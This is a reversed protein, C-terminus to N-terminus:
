LFEADTSLLPVTHWYRRNLYRRQVKYCSCRDACIVAAFVGAAFLLSFFIWLLPSWLVSSRRFAPDFICQHEMRLVLSKGSTWVMRQKCRTRLLSHWYFSCNQRGECLNYIGNLKDDQSANYVCETPLGTPSNESESSCLETKPEVITVFWIKILQDQHCSINVHNSPCYLLDHDSCIVETNDDPSLFRPQCGNKEDLECTVNDIIQCPRTTACASWDSCLSETIQTIYGFFILQLSIRLHHSLIPLKINNM